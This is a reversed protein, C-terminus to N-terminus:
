PAPREVPLPRPEAAIFAAVAGWGLLMAGLACSVALPGTRDTEAPFYPEALDGITGSPSPIRASANLLLGEFMWRSPNLGAVQRAWDPLGLWSRSEGGVGWLLLALLAVLAWAVAPRSVAAAVILGLALGTGAGLWLLGLAPLGALDAGSLARFTGWELLGGVLCLVAALSARALWPGLGAAPIARARAGVGVGIVLGLGVAALGLRSLLAAIAQGAAAWDAPNKLSGPDFGASAVALVGALPGLALFLLPRLVQGWRGPGPGSSPTLAPAPGIQRPRAIPDVRLVLMCHGLRITDGARAVGSSDIKRDNIFTGNSSGLDEVVVTGDARRSLRAHRSSVVAQDIVRDCGPDRGVVVPEAGVRLEGPPTGLAEFVRVASLPYTGLYITDTPSVVARAAKRDPLGVATGNSSGLDEIEALGPRGSWIVRAHYGSVTPLDVVLDNDPERGIRLVRSASRAFAGVVALDGPWPMSQSQGLTIVNERSVRLPVTVQQGDVFTGNTSGLDELLYGTDGVSTLRCHRASVAQHDVVLDCDPDSGITWSRTM